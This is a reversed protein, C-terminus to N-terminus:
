EKNALTYYESAASRGNVCTCFRWNNNIKLEGVDKCLDCYNKKFIYQLIILLISFSFPFLIIFIIVKLM